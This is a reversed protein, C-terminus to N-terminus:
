LGNQIAVEQRGKGFWKAVIPKFLDYTWKLNLCCLVFHVAIFIFPYHLLSRTEVVIEVALQLFIMLVWPYVICRILVWTVYFLISVTETIIPSLKKSKDNGGQKYVVRRLILFWTNVEVSLACGIFWNYAPFFIPGTLYLIATIHHKIILGPSKVCIPVIAVWLLDSIFYLNTTLWNLWFYEGVWTIQLSQLELLPRFDYNLLTTYVVLPLVLLNFYDHRDRAIDSETYSNAVQADKTPSNGDSEHQEDHVPESDDAGGDSAPTQRITNYRQRPAM